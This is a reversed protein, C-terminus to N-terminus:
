ETEDSEDPNTEDQPPEIKKPESGPDDIEEFEFEIPSDDLEIQLEFRKGFISLSSYDVRRLTDGQGDLGCNIYPISSLEISLQTILEEDFIDILHSAVTIEPQLAFRERLLGYIIASMAFVADNLDDPSRVEESFYNAINLVPKCPLRTQYAPMAILESLIRSFFKEIQDNKDIGDPAAKNAGHFIQFHREDFKM